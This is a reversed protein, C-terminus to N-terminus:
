RVKQFLEIAGLKFSVRLLRWDAQLGPETHGPSM